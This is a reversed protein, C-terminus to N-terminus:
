KRDDIHERCTPFSAPLFCHKHDAGADGVAYLAPKLLISVRVTSDWCLSITGKQVPSSECM